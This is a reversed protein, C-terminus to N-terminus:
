CHWSRIQVATDEIQHTQLKISISPEHGPEDWSKSLLLVRQLLWSSKIEDQPWVDPYYLEGQVINM